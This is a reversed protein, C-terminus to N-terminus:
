GLFHPLNSVKSEVSGVVRVLKLPVGSFSESDLIITNATEIEVARPLCKNVHTKLFLERIKEFYEINLLLGRRDEPLPLNNKNFEDLTVSQLPTQIQASCNRLCEIMAKESAILDNAACGLGVIGGFRNLARSGEALCIRVRYGLCSSLEYMKILVRNSDIWQEIKPHFSWKVPFFPLRNSFHYFFAEREIFEQKAHEKAESQTVHAALGLSNENHTKCYWREVSESFAKSLAIDSDRDSGRGTAQVGEISISVSVDYLDMDLTKPWGYEVVKLNLARRNLFIWDTLRKSNAM